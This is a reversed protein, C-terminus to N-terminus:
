SKKSFNFDHYRLAHNGFIKLRTELNKKSCKEFEEVRKQTIQAFSGSIKLSWLGNRENIYNELATLNGETIFCDDYRNFCLDLEKIRKFRSIFNKSLDFTKIEKANKLKGLSLKLFELRNFPISSLLKQFIHEPITNDYEFNELNVFMTLANLNNQASLFSFLSEWNSSDKSDAFITLTLSKLNLDPLKGFLDRLNTYYKMQLNLVLNSIYKKNLAKSLKSCFDKPAIYKALDIQLYLTHIKNLKELSSVIPLLGEQCIDGGKIKFNLVELNVLNALSNGIAPTDFIKYQNGMLLNLVLLKLTINKIAAWIDDLFDSNYNCTPSETNVTINLEQLSTSKLSKLYKLSRLAVEQPHVSFLIKHGKLSCLKNSIQIMAQLDADEEFTLVNTNFYELKRMRPFVLTAPLLTRFSFNYSGAFSFSRLHRKTSAKRFIYLINKKLGNSSNDDYLGRDSIELNELHPSSRLLFIKLAKLMSPLNTNTYCLASGKCDFSSIVLTKQLKSTSLHMKHTKSNFCHLLSRTVCKFHRRAQPTKLIALNASLKCTSPFFLRKRFISVGRVSDSFPYALSLFKTM